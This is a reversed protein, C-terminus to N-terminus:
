VVVAVHLLTSFTVAKQKQKMIDSNPQVASSQTQYKDAGAAGSGASPACFV